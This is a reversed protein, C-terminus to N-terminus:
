FHFINTQSSRAAVTEPCTRSALTERRVGSLLTFISLHLPTCVSLHFLFGASASVRSRAERIAHGHEVRHVAALERARESSRAPGQPGQRTQCCEGGCFGTSTRRGRSARLAARFAHTAASVPGVGCQALSSLFATPRVLTRAARLRLPTPELRM